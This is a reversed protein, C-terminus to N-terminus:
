VLTRDGARPAFRRIVGDGQKPRAVLRTFSNLTAYAGFFRDLVAAFLFAGTGDYKEEDLDVTVEVGTCFGDVAPDDSVRGVVREGAVRVLGDILLRNVDAQKQDAQPDSADYLRLLERLAALGEDRDATLSLHNLSLHSVLRWYGGRGRPPRLPATPPRVCRIRAVPAAAELQFGLRDGASRLDAPLNRNTCTTTVILTAAAPRTPDWGGDVVALDVETGRDDDRGSARRTPYWFAARDGRGTAHDVAYFPRYEVEDGGGADKGVVADVSYVELGHPHAVDPTVRYETRAQTLDVPEATKEFLNVVPTCGLRFTDAGVGEELKKASRRLYVLVDCKAGFGAARARRFGSVDVFWFKAPYAFFETLLRYGPFSQRPFPYLGDDAPRGGADTGLGVPTLAGPGLVVPPAAPRDPSTLVVGAAHNLLAEYLAAVLANDGALHFRLADLTIGDFTAGHRGTLRIRLVAATGAPPSVGKPYPPGLVGAAEVEVPWLTVPYATRYRCPVERVPATFLRSGRPIVFGERLSTRDPAAVFEVVAASPVPALYHPYLVHLLADTLEPFEDDLKHRVRGALFACGEMLREVHPDTEALVALRGAADPYLVAFEKALQRLARLEKEYYDKLDRSM